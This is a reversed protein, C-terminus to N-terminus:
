IGEEFSPAGRRDLLHLAVKAEAPPLDSRLLIM